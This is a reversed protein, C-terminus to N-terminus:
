GQDTPSSAVFHGDFFANRGISFRLHIDALRPCRALRCDYEKVADTVAAPHPPIVHRAHGSEVTQSRVQWAEAAAVPESPVRHDGSGVQDGFEDLVVNGFLLRAEDAKGETAPGRM